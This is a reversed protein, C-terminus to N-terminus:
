VIVALLSAMQRVLLLLAVRIVTESCMYCIFACVNHCTMEVSEIIIMFLFKFHWEYICGFGGM